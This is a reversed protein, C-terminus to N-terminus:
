KPIYYLYSDVLVYGFNYPIMVYSKYRQHMLFHYMNQCMEKFKENLSEPQSAAADHLGGSAAMRRIPM